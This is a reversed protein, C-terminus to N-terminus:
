LGARRFNERALGIKYESEEITTVTGGLGEAAYALWLTSYGNSTGIELVRKAKLARSLLVLFEGVEPAINLMRKPYETHRADNADGFQELERLLAILKEDMLM